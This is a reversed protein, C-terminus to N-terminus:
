NLLLAMYQTSNVHIVTYVKGTVLTLGASANGITAGTADIIVDSGGAVNLVLADAAAASNKAIIRMEWGQHAGSAAPLTLALPGGSPGAPDFTQTDAIITRHTSASLNLVATSPHGTIETVSGLYASAGIGGSVSLKETPANTGIGVKDLGANTVLLNADTDGEIRVDIDAGGENFIIGSSGSIRLQEVSDTGGKTVYFLLRGDETTTDADESDAFINAFTHLNGATDDAKFKIHGIDRSDAGTGTSRWFVLEPENANTGTNEILVTPEGGDADSLHLLETPSNTGIGVNGDTHIRMREAVADTGSVKTNFTIASTGTGDGGGSSLILNGGNQDASGTPASGAAITLDRGDTGSGTTAVSLEANGGNAFVVKDLSTITLDGSSYSVDSLDNLASVTGAGIDSAVETGTRFDVNGGSDLVLFKDTDTGANVVSGLNLTGAVTTAGLGDVSFVTTDGEDGDSDDDTLVEFKEDATNDALIFRIDGNAVKNKFTTRDATASVTMGETYTGGTSYGLSLSNESKNVTLFQIQMPDTGTYGLIAIIVDGDTYAPVADTTTPPRVSLNTTGTANVVLHYGTTHSKTTGSTSGITITSGTVDVKQGDRFVVGNAFTVDDDTVATVNFGRTAYNGKMGLSLAKILGTHPFDTADTIQPTTIVPNEAEDQTSFANPNNLGKSM